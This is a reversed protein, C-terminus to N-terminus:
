ENGGQRFGATIPVVEVRLEGERMVGVAFALQWDATRRTYAFFSSEPDVLNGFSLATNRDQNM